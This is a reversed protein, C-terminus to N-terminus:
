ILVNTCELCVFSLYYNLMEHSVFEEMCYIRRNNWLIFSSFLFNRPSFLNIIDLYLIKQVLAKAKHFDTVILCNTENGM